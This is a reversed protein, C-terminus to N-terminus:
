VIMVGYETEIIQTLLNFEEDLLYQSKDEIQELQKILEQITM